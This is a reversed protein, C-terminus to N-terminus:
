APMLVRLRPESIEIEFPLRAEFWDGDCQYTVLQDGEIRISPARVIALDRRRRHRRLVVDRLLGLTRMASGEFLLVDLVGDDPEADPALQFSGGYYRINCAALFSFDHSQQGLRAQIKPYSFTRITSVATALIAMRGWRRKRETSTQRLVEADVGISAMMLFITGNCHGVDIKRIPSRTADYCNAAALSKRPIGLGRALVNTTGAPVLGIPVKSGHLGAAVERLTGDGGCAFVIEASGEGVARRALETAHGPHRTEEVATEFGRASLSAVVAELLRRTDRGGAAPNHILLAPKLAGIRRARRV